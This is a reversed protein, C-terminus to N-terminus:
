DLVLGEALRGSEVLASGPQTAGGIVVNTLRVPGDGAWVLPAGAPAIEVMGPAKQWAGAPAEDPDIQAIVLPDGGPLLSFAGPLPPALARVINRIRESPDSWDLHNV